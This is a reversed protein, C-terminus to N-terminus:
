AKKHKYLFSKDRAIRYLYVQVPGDEWEDQGFKKKGYDTVGEGTVAIDM